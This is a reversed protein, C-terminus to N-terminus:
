QCSTSLTVTVTCKILEALNMNCIYVKLRDLWCYNLASDGYGRVTVTVGTVTVGGYGIPDTQMFQGLTPSHVRAKYYYMGLEPLWTQGTYQFRGLNTSLPIGYEDYKNLAISTGASNTVAIVSGREDSHLWRRDTTGPPHRM